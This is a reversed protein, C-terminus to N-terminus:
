GVFLKNPAAAIMFKKGSGFFLIDGKARYHYYYSHM